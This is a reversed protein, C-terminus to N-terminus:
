INEDGGSLFGYGNLLQEKDEWAQLWQCSDIYM